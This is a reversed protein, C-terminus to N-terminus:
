ENEVAITGKTCGPDAAEFPHQGGKGLRLGRLPDVVFRETQAVVVDGM